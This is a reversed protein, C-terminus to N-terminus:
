LKGPPLTSIKKHSPSPNRAKRSPPYYQLKKPTPPPKGTMLNNKICHLQSKGLPFNKRLPNLNNGNLPNM